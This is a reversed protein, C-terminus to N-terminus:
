EWFQHKRRGETRGKWFIRIIDRSQTKWVTFSKVVEQLQWEGHVRILQPRYLLFLSQSMQLIHYSIIWVGRPDNLFISKPSATHSL